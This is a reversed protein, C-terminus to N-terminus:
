NITLSDLNYCKMGERITAVELMTLGVMFMQNQSSRDLSDFLKIRLLDLQEPSLLSMSRPDDLVVEYSTKGQKMLFSDILKVRRNSDFFISAVKIDGHQTNNEELYALCSVVQEFIRCIEVELMPKKLVCHHKIDDFLSYTLLEYEIEFTKMAESCFLEKELPVEKLQYFKALNPHQM